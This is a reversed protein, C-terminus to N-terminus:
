IQSFTAWVRPLYLCSIGTVALGAQHVCHTGPCCPRQLPVESLVFLCLIKFSSIFCSTPTYGATCRKGLLHSAKSDIGSPRPYRREGVAPRLTVRGGEHAGVLSSSPVCAVPTAARPRCLASSAETVPVSSAPGPDHRCPSHSAGMQEWSGVPVAVAMELGKNPNNNGFLYLVNFGSPRTCGLLHGGVVGAPCFLNTPPPLRGFGLGAGQSLLCHYSSERM